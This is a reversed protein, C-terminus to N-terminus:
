WCSQKSSDRIPSAFVNDFVFTNPRHWIKRLIIACFEQDKLSKKKTIDTWLDKISMSKVVWNMLPSNNDGWVDCALLCEWLSHILTKPALTCIPCETQKTVNRKQFQLLYYIMVHEGFLINSQVRFISSGFIKGFCRKQNQHLHNVQIKEVEKSKWLM